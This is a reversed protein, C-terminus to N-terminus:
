QKGCQAAAHRAIVVVAEDDLTVALLKQKAAPTCAPGLAGLGMAAASVIEPYGTDDLAETLADAAGPPALQGIAPAAHELLELAAKNDSAVAQWDYFRALLTVGLARDGLEAALDIARGRLAIPARKDDWTRALTQAINPAHCQVLAGLADLRVGTEHDGAIAAVLAAAPGPRMCRTGLAQAAKRRVEPWHDTLATVIVRDVGDVGAPAHGPGGPDGDATALASLAALRVGPDSDRALDVVIPEAEVRPTREIARIAVQRLAATAATGAPLARLTADLNRLAAADGLTALGDILRYRQEYDTAAALAATMVTIAADRAERNKSARLQKTLARWVDPANPGVVQILSAAPATALMEIVTARLERMDITGALEVLAALGLPSTARIARIAAIRQEVPQKPQRAIAALAAYQELGGLAAIVGDLDTARVWGENVARGLSAAAAPDRNIALAAVLRKRAGADATKALEDDIAAVGPAGHKALVGAIAALNGTGDVLGHALLALGGPGRERETMVELEAISTANATGAYVSDLIVTVCGSIPTPLDVVYAAGLPEKIPDALEIWWTGQATAVAIRHPRNSAKMAAASRPDGPVIRLQRAPAGALRPAFTFFQGKGDSALDETWVTETRGDDLEDPHGLGGADSAGPMHSALRAAYVMPITPPATDLHATLTPATEAVDIPPKAGAFKATALDFVEPFVLAPKGDCREAGAVHQYRILWRPDADLEVGYERDGRTGLAIRAVERWPGRDNAIVVAEREGLADAFSVVVIPKGSARSAAIAGAAALKGVRLEGAGRGTIRVLGDDGLEFHTGDADLRAVPAAVAPAALALVILTARLM